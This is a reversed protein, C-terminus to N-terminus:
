NLTYLMNHTNYLFPTKLTQPVFYNNARMYKRKWVYEIKEKNSYSFFILHYLAQLIISTNDNTELIFNFQIKM